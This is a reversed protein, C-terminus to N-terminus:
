NATTGLDAIEQMEKLLLQASEYDLYSQRGTVENEWDQFHHRTIADLKSQPQAQAPPTLPKPLLLDISSATVRNKVVTIGVKRRFLPDPNTDSRGYGRTTILLQEQNEQPNGRIVVKISYALGSFVGFDAPVTRGLVLDVDYEPTEPFMVGSTSALDLGAQKITKYMSMDIMDARREQDPTGM